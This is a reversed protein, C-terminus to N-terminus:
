NCITFKLDDIFFGDGSNNGIVIKRIEEKNITFSQSQGTSMSDFVKTGLIEDNQNYYKIYGSNEADIINVTFSSIDSSFNINLIENKYFGHTNQAGLVHSGSTPVADSPDNAKNFIRPFGLSTSFEVGYNIYQNSLLTKDEFVNKQDDTEFNLSYEKDTCTLGNIPENTTTIDKTEDKTLKIECGCLFIASIIILILKM